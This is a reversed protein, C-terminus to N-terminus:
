SSIREAVRYYEIGAPPSNCHFSGAGIGAERRAFNKAGGAERRFEVDLGLTRFDQHQKGSFHLQKKVISGDIHPIAGGNYHALGIPHYARLPGAGTTGQAHRNRCPGTAFRRLGM